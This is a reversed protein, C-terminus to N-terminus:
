GCISHVHRSLRGHAYQIPITFLHYSKWGYEPFDSEGNFVLQACVGFFVIVCLLTYAIIAILCRIRNYKLADIRKERSM